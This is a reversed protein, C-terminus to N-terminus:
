RSITTKLKNKIMQLRKKRMTREDPKGINKVFQYAKPFDIYLGGPIPIIPPIYHTFLTNIKENLKSEVFRSKEIYLSNKVIEKHNNVGNIDVSQTKFNIAIFIPINTKKNLWFSKPLVKDLTHLLTVTVYLELLENSSSIKQFGGVLQGKENVKLHVTVLGSIRQDAFDKPYTIKQNIKEWLRLLFPTIANTKEIDLNNMYGFTNQSSYLDYPEKTKFISDTTNQSTFYLTNTKWKPLFNSNSKKSKKINKKPKSFTNTIASPSKEIIKVEISNTRNKFPKKM